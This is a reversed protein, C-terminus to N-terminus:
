KIIPNIDLLITNWDYGFAFPATILPARAREEKLDLDVALSKMM